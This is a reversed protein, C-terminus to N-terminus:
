RRRPITQQAQRVTEASARAPSPPDAHYKATAVAGDPALTALGADIRAQGVEDTLDVVQGIAFSFHHGSWSVQNIVLM